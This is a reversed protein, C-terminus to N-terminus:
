TRSCHKEIKDCNVNQPWIIRQQPSRGMCKIFDLWCGQERLSGYYFALTPPSHLLFKSEEWEPPQFDLFLTNPTNAESSAEGRPKCIAAKEKHRWMARERHMQTGPTERRIFVATMSSKPRHYHSWKLSLTEKIVKGEHQMTLRKLWTHSQLETSQLRGLDKMWPIRWALIKSCTERGEELPDEWGLSQVRM